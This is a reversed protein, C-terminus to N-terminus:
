LDLNHDTPEVKNINESAYAPVDLLVVLLKSMQVLAVLQPSCKDKLDNLIDNESQGSKRSSLSVSISGYKEYGPLNKGEKIAPAGSWGIYTACIEKEEHGHWILGDSYFHETAEGYKAILRDKVDSLKTGRPLDLMRGIGVLKESDPKARFLMIRESGDVNEYQMMDSFFPKSWKSSKLERVRGIELKGRVVSEAESFAMSLTLGNINVSGIQTRMTAKVKADAQKQKAAKQAAKEETAKQKAFVDTAAPLDAPLFTKILDGYPSYIEAKDFRLALINTEEVFGEPTVVFSLRFGDNYRQSKKLNNEVCARYNDMVQLDPAPQNPLTVIPGPEKGCEQRSNPPRIFLKEAENRPMAVPPIIPLRDIAFQLRGYLSPLKDFGPSNVKSRLANTGILLERSGLTPISAKKREDEMSYKFFVDPGQGSGTNSNIVGKEYKFYGVSLYRDLRVQDPIASAEKKLFTKYEQLLDEAAFNVARGAVQEETFLLFTDTQPLSTNQEMAQKIAKFYNQERSIIQRLSNKLIDESLKEPAYKYTILASPINTLGDPTNQAHALGIAGSPDFSVGLLFLIARVIAGICFRKACM